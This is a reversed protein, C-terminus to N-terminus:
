KVKDAAAALAKVYDELVWSIALPTPNAATGAPTTGSMLYMSGRKVAPIKSLLPDRGVKEALKADGYGVIIDVDDFIDIQESSRTLAFKDTGKSADM